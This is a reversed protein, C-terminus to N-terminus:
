TSSRGLGPNGGYDLPENDGFRLKCDSMRKGCIDLGASGVPQGFRDFWKTPNTGPWSCGSGGATSKYRHPCSNAIAVMGPLQKDMFDMPSSLEFKITDKSESVRQEVVYYEDHYEGIDALVYSALTRRRWVTAGVMDQYTRCLETIIRNVNAIEVVPRASSGTGRKDIGTVQVPWPLFTLGQYTIPQNSADVGPYIYFVQGTAGIPGLDICYFDMLATPELKHSDIILSM